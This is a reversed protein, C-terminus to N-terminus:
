ASEKVCGLCVPCLATTDGCESSAKCTDDTCCSDNGCAACLEEQIRTEIAGVSYAELELAEEYLEQMVRARMQHPTLGDIRRLTLALTPETGGDQSLLIEVYNPADSENLVAQAPEALVDLLVQTKEIVGKMATNEEVLVTNWAHLEKVKSQLEQLEENYLDDERFRDEDSRTLSM